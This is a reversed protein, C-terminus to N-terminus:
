EVFDEQAQRALRMEEPTADREASWVLEGGGEPIRAVEFTGEALNVRVGRHDGEPRPGTEGPEPEDKGEGGFPSAAGTDTVNALDSQDDPILPAQDPTAKPERRQGMYDGADAVVILIQKGQASGLNHLNDATYPAKVTAKIGDKITVSDVTAAIQVRGASAILRAIKQVILEAGNNLASIVDRQEKELMQSWPKPRRKFAELMADRLDGRASRLDVVSEGLADELEEALEDGDLEARIAEDNATEPGATGQAPAAAALEGGQVMAAVREAREGAEENMQAITAPDEIL